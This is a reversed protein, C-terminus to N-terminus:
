RNLNSGNIKEEKLLEAHKAIFQESPASSEFWTDLIRQIMSISYGHEQFLFEAVNDIANDLEPKAIDYLEDFLLDNEDTMQNEKIKILEEFHGTETINGM